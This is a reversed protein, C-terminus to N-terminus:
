NSQIQTFQFFKSKWLLQNNELSYTIADLSRFKAHPIFNCYIQFNEPNWQPRFNRWLKQLSFTVLFYKSRYSAEFKGDLSKWIVENQEGNLLFKRQGFQWYEMALKTLDRLRSRVFNKTAKRRSSASFTWCKCIFQQKQSFYITADIPM